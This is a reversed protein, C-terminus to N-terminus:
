RRGPAIAFLPVYGFRRWILTTMWVHATSWAAVSAIAAGVAGFGPILALCLAADLAAAAGLVGAAARENGTMSMVLQGPGALARLCQGFLLIRMADSAVVFREGFLQLLWPALVFAPVALLSTGVIMRLTAGHVASRKQDPEASAHHAAILPAVVAQLALTPLMVLESWAVAVAYFGAITTGAMWGLLLLDLRLLLINLGGLLALNVAAALWIRGRREVAAPRPDRGVVRRRLALAVALAVALGVALAAVAHIASIPPAALAMAGILVIAAGDRIIREPTAGLAPLGTAVIEAANLRVAAVIPL